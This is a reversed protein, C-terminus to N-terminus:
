LEQKPQKSEKLGCSTQDVATYYCDGGEEEPVNENAVCCTGGDGFVGRISEKKGWAVPVSEHRLLCRAELEEAGSHVSKSIGVGFGRSQAFDTMNHFCLSQLAAAHIEMPPGCRNTKLVSPHNPSSQSSTTSPPPYTHRCYNPRLPTNHNTLLAVRGRDCNSAPYVFCEILKHSGLAPLMIAKQLHHPSFFPLKDLKSYQTHIGPAQTLGVGFQQELIRTLMLDDALNYSTCDGVFRGGSM